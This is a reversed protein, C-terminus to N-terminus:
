VSKRRAVGVLGLLGSGFLWAAAPVPVATLELRLDLGIQSTLGVTEFPSPGVVFDAGWLSMTTGDFSNPAPSAGGCCVIGNAFVITTDFLSATDSASFDVDLIFPNDVLVGEGTGPNTLTVTGGGNLALVLNFFGSVDDFSGTGVLGSFSALESGTMANNDNDIDGADDGIGTDGAFHFGSYGFEADVGDLVANINYLAASATTASMALLFGILIKNM